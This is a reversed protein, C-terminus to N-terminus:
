EVKGSMVKKVYDQASEEKKEPEKGASTTGGLANRAMLEEQRNLLEEQKKNAEELRKAAANANDILSATKPVSGADETSTAQTSEPQTEGKAEDTM